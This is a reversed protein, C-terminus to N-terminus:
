LFTGPSAKLGSCGVGVWMGNLGVSNECRSAGRFSMIRKHPTEVMKRVDGPLRLYARAHKNVANILDTNDFPKMMYEAAGLKTAEVATEIAGHGTLIIVPLEPKSMRVIRLVEIGTRGPMMLDTIVLNFNSYLLHDEVKQPDNLEIVEYGEPTLLRRIIKTISVEDDVVLIRENGRLGSGIELPQFPPENNKFSTEPKNRLFTM